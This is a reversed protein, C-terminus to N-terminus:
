SIRRQDADPDPKVQSHSSASHLQQAAAEPPALSVIRDRTGSGYQACTHIARHAAATHIYAGRM